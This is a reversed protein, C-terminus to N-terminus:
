SDFILTGLSPLSTLSEPFTSGIQNGQARLVQLSSLASLDSVGTFINTAVNLEVLSGMATAFDMPGSFFNSQMELKELSTMAQMEAPPAGTLVNSSVNLEVLNTLSGIAADIPGDLNLGSIDLVELQTMDYVFAPINGGGLGTNGGVRLVKLTSLAGWDELISGTLQNNAINLETLALFAAYETPIAGDFRNGGLGLVELNPLSAFGTPLAGSFGAGNGGRNNGAEFVTLNQLSEAGSLEGSFRCGDLGVEQLKTLTWLSDNISGTLGPNSGLRLVKLNVLKSWDFASLDQDLGNTELYLEVLSSANALSAPLTGVIINDSLSLAKLNSLLFLDSSIAQVGNSDMDLRTVVNVEGAGELEAIECTIGSWTCEDETEAWGTSNTWYARSSFWFTLLAFRQGLRFKDAETAPSLQLPDDNILWNIALTV